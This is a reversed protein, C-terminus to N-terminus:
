CGMNQRFRQTERESRADDKEEADIIGWKEPFQSLTFPCAGCYEDTPSRGFRSESAHKALCADVVSCIGGGGVQRQAYRSQVGTEACGVRRKKGKTSKKTKASKKKSACWPKQQGQSGIPTTKARSACVRAPSGGLSCKYLEMPSKAYGPLGGNYLRALREWKTIDDPNYIADQM